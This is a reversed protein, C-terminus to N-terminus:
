TRDLGTCPNSYRYRLNINRTSLLFVQFFYCPYPPFLPPPLLLVLVFSLYNLYLLFIYPKIIFNTNLMPSQDTISKRRTADKTLLGIKRKHITLEVEYLKVDSNVNIEKPPPPLTPVTNISPYNISPYNISPYNEKWVDAVCGTKL